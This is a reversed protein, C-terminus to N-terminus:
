RVVKALKKRGKPAAAATTQAPKWLDTHSMDVHAVMLSRGAMPYSKGNIVQEFQIGVVVMVPLSFGKPADFGFSVGTKTSVPLAISSGTFTSFRELEFDLSTAAAKITIHSANCDHPLWEAPVFESLTIYCKGTRRDLKVAPMGPLHRLLPRKHYFDFGELLRLDGKSLSRKGLDSIPDSQAVRLLKANLKGSLQHEKASEKLLVHLATFILRTGNGANAFEKALERGISTSPITKEKKACM